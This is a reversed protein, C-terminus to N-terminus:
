GEHEKKGECKMRNLRRGEGKGMNQTDKTEERTQVVDDGANNFRSCIERTSFWSPPSRSATFFFNLLLLNPDTAEIFTLTSGSSKGYSVSSLQSNLTTAPFTDEILELWCPLIM